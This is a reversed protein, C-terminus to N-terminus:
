LYKWFINKDKGKPGQWQKSNTHAKSYHKHATPIKSKKGHANSSDNVFVDFISPLYKNDKFIIWVIGLIYM